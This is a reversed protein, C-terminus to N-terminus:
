NLNSQHTFRRFSLLYILSNVTSRRVRKRFSNKNPFLRCPRRTMVVVMAVVAALSRGLLPAIAV